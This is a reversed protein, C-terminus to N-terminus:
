TRLKKGASPLSLVEAPSDILWTERLPDPVDSISGDSVVMGLDNLIHPAMHYVNKFM